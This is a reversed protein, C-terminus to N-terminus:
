PLALLGKTGKDKGTPYAAASPMHCNEHGLALNESGQGQFLQQISPKPGKNMISFHPSQLALILVATHALM